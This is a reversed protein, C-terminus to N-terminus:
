KPLRAIRGFGKITSHISQKEEKKWPNDYRKDSKRQHFGKEKRSIEEVYWDGCETTPIIPRRYKITDSWLANIINYKINM